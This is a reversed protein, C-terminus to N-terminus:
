GSKNGAPRICEGQEPARAGRTYRGRRVHRPEPELAAVAVVVPLLGCLQHPVQLRLLSRLKSEEPQFEVSM